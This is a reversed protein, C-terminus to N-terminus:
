LMLTVPGPPLKIEPNQELQIKLLTLFKDRPLELAGFQETVPTLVQCDFWPIAQQKLIQVLLCLCLKSSNSVRFFMSEAAFMQGIRVGYLGGVLSGAQFCEISHAYGAQHFAIYAELIDETIWTGQQNGRNKMEACKQIVQSFCTNLAFEFKQKRAYRKLRDPIRFQNLFMIARQPPSFWTLLDEALPWPFIGSRYALLLSEPELDGGVALLGHPDAYELPPFREIVM